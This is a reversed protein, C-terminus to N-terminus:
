PIQGFNKIVTRIVKDLSDETRVSDIPLVACCVFNFFFGGPAVMYPDHTRTPKNGTYQVYIQALKNIFEYLADNKPRGGEDIPLSLIALKATSAINSLTTESNAIKALIGYSENELAHEDDTGLRERYYLLNEAAKSLGGLAKRQDRSKPDLRNGVTEFDYVEAAELIEGIARKTAWKSVKPPTAKELAIRIAEIEAHSYLDHMADVKLVKGDIKLFASCRRVHLFYFNLSKPTV